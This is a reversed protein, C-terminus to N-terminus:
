AYAIRFNRFVVVAYLANIFWLLVAQDFSAIWLIGVIAVLAKTILGFTEGVVDFLQALLPNAERTNARDLAMMTSVVDLIQVLIGFLVAWLLCGELSTLVAIANDM